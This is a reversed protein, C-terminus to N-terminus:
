KMKKEESEKKEYIKQPNKKRLPLIFADINQKKTKTHKFTGNLM